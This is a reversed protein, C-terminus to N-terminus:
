ILRKKNLINCINLTEKLNIKILNSIEFLNRKGDSYALFNKLSKNKYYFKKGITSMLNRRGLNPECLYKNKPIFNKNEIADIINKFVEFSNNLGEESIYKLNDQDTHYEKFTHYRSRCFGSVPLDIGPYCYQREDSGRELYSYRVLNKKNVLAAELAKDSLKGGERSQIISYQKNDGVCSIAFGMLMNKKLVKYKKSLYCISGITEPIFIFRYSFRSKKYKEKVYKILYIQLALSATNDNAMSPHCTYTSFFIEKNKSGRKFYEGIELFGKKFSSDIKIFYKKSKLKKKQNASMCFGWYKRYYSTVYPVANPLSDDSHIKELLDKRNIWKNIPMSHYVVSLLNKKFDLIKKGKIDKIYADKINWEEPVIWDFAKTGSRFKLIKIENVLKKIYFLTQRSPEGMISRPMYFLDNIIKLMKM